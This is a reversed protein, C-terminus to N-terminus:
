SAPFLWDMVFFACVIAVVIGAVIKRNIASDLGLLFLGFAPIASLLAGGILGLFWGWSSIAWLTGGAFVAVVTFSFVWDLLKGVVDGEFFAEEQIPMPEKKNKM